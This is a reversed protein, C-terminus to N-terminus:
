KPPLSKFISRQPTNKSGSPPSHSKNMKTVGAVQVSDPVTLM